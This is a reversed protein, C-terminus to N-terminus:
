PITVITENSGQSEGGKSDIARVIYAYTQGSVATTDTFTTGDIPASNLKDPYIGAGPGRYVNYRVLPSESAQWRLVVSRRQPPRAAEASRRGAFSIGGTAVFWGCSLLAAAVVLVGTMAKKWVAIRSDRMLLVQCVVLWIVTIALGMLILFWAGGLAEPVFSPLKHHSKRAVWPDIWINEATFLCVAVSLAWAIRAIQSSAEAMNGSNDVIKGGASILRQAAVSKRRHQPLKLSALSVPHPLGGSRL